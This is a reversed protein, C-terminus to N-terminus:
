RGSGMDEELQRKLEHFEEISIYTNILGMSDKFYRELQEAIVNYIATDNMHYAHASSIDGWMAETEVEVTTNDLKLDKKWLLTGYESEMRMYIFGGFNIPGKVYYNSTVTGTFLNKTSADYVRLGETSINIALEPKLYLDIERKEAHVIEDMLGYPGKVQAGKHLLIKDIAGQIGNSFTSYPDTTSLQVNYGSITSNAFAPKILAINLDESGVPKADGPVEYSFDPNYRTLPEKQESTQELIACSSLTVFVAVLPITLKLNNM